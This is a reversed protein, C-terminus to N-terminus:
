TALAKFPRSVGTFVASEGLPFPARAHGLKIAIQRRELDHLRGFPAGGDDEVRRM